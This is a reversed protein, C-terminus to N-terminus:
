AEMIEDDICVCLMESDELRVNYYRTYGDYAIQMSEITGLQGNCSPESHNVIEILQNIEFV